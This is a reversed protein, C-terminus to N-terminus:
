LHISPQSCVNCRSSRRCMQGTKAFDKVCSVSTRCCFFRMSASLDCTRQVSLKWKKKPRYKHILDASKL